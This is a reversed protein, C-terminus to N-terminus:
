GLLLIQVGFMFWLGFLLLSSTAYVTFRHLVNNYTCHIASHTVRLLVYLWSGGVFVLTVSQTVFITLCFVYFLVPMEFLNKFNDAANTNNLREAMQRSTSIEQVAIQRSRLESIRDVYLRVWVMFTLAIMACLPLFIKTQSM